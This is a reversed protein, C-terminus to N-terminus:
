SGKQLMDKSKRWIRQKGRSSYYTKIGLKKGLDLTRDKSFDDVLIVEDVINFPIKRILKKL